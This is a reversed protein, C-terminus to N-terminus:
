NAKSKVPLKFVQTIVCIAESNMLCLTEFCTIESVYQQHMTDILFYFCQLVMKLWLTYM